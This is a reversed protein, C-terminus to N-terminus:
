GCLGHPDERGLCPGRPGREQGTVLWSWANNVKRRVPQQARSGLGGIDVCGGGGTSSLQLAYHAMADSVAVQLGCCCEAAGVSGACSSGSEEGKPIREHQVVNIEDETGEATEGTGQRVDCVAVLWSVCWM